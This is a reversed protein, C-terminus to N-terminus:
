EENIWQSLAAAMRMSLEEVREKDEALKFLVLAEIFQNAKHYADGVRVMGDKSNITVFIQKAQALQGENLLSNGKRILLVRDKESISLSDSVQGVRIFGEKPLQALVKEKSNM